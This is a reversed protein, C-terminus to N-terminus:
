TLVGKTRCCEIEAYLNLKDVEVTLRCSVLECLKTKSEVEEVRKELSNNKTELTNVKTRM